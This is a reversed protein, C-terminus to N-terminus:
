GDRVASVNEMKSIARLNVRRLVLDSLLLPKYVYIPRYKGSTKKTLKCLWNTKIGM